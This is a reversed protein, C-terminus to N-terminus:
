QVLKSTMRNSMECISIQLWVLGGLSGFVKGTFSLPIYGAQKLKDNNSLFEEFTAPESIGVKSFISKNYVVATSIAGFPIGFTKDQANEIKPSNKTLENMNDMLVPNMTEGWATSTDYAPTSLESSLDMILNNEALATYDVGQTAFLDPMNKSSSLTRIKNSYGDGPAVYEYDVKIGPNEKEFLDILDQTVYSFWSVFKINVQGEPATSSESKPANGSNGCGTLVVTALLLLILVLTFGKKM